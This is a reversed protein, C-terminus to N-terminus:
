EKNRERGAVPKGGTEGVECVLVWQMKKRKKKEEQEVHLGRINERPAGVERLRHHIARAGTDIELSFCNLSM